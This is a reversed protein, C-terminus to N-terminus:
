GDRCRSPGSLTREDRPFGETCFDLMSTTALFLNYILTPELCTKPCEPMKMADEGPVGVARGGKLGKRGVVVVTDAIAVVLLMRGGAILGGETGTSSAQGGHRGLLLM